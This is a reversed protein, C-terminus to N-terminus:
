FSAARRRIAIEEHSLVSRYIALIYYRQLTDPYDLLEAPFIIAPDSIWDFRAVRIAKFAYWGAL